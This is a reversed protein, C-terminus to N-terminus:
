DGVKRSVFSVACCVVRGVIRRNNCTYEHNKAAAFNKNLRQRAVTPPIKSLRQTAVLPPYMYLSVSQNSPNIFYATSIREPAMIYVGVKM